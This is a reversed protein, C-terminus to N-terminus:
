KYDESRTKQMTMGECLSAMFIKLRYPIQRASQLRLGPFHQVTHWKEAGFKKERPGFPEHTAGRLGVGDSARTEETTVTALFAMPILM